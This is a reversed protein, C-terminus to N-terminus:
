AGGDLIGNLGDGASVGQGAATHGQMRGGVRGGGAGASGEPRPSLSMRANGKIVHTMLHRRFGSQGAPRNKPERASSRQDASKATNTAGRSGGIGFFLLGHVGHDVRVNM